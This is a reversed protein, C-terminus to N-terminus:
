QHFLRKYTMRIREAGASHTPDRRWLCRHNCLRNPSRQRYLCGYFFSHHDVMGLIGCKGFCPFINIAVNSPSSIKINSIILVPKLKLRCVDILHPLNRKKQEPPLNNVREWAKKQQEIIKAIERTMKVEPKKGTQQVGIDFEQKLPVNWWRTNIIEMCGIQLASLKEAPFIGETAM